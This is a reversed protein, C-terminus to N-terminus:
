SRRPLLDARVREWTELEGRAMAARAEAIAVREEETELEDDESADTLARLLPDAAQKQLKQLLHEAEALAPEPLEDVLRHLREKTTMMDEVSIRGFPEFVYWFSALVSRPSAAAIV